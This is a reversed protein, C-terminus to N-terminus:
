AGMSASSCDQGSGTIIGIADEGRGGVNQKYIPCYVDPRSGAGQDGTRIKRKTVRKLSSTARDYELTVEPPKPAGYGVEKAKALQMHIWQLKSVMSPPTASQADGLHSVDIPEILPAVGFETSPSTPLSSGLISTAVTIRFTSAPIMSVFSPIIFKPSRWITPRLSLSLPLCIGRSLNLPIVILTDKNVPSGEERAIVIEPSQPSSSTSPTSSVTISPQSLASSSTTESTTTVLSTVSPITSPPAVPPPPPAFSSTPSGTTTILPHVAIRRTPLGKLLERTLAEDTEEFKEEKNRAKWAAKRRQEVEEWSVPCLNFLDEEESPQHHYYVSVQDHLASLHGRIRDCPDWHRMPGRHGFEMNEIEKAFKELASWNQFYIGGIAFPLYSYPKQNPLKCKKAVGYNCQRAGELAALRDAVHVLLGFARTLTGEVRIITFEEFFWWAGLQTLDRRVGETIRPMEVGCIAGLPNPWEQRANGWNKHINYALVEALDPKRDNLIIEGLLPVWLQNVHDTDAEGWLRNLLLMDVRIGKRFHSIPYDLYVRQKFTDLNEVWDKLVGKVLDGIVIAVTGAPSALLGRELRCDRMAVAFLDKCAFVEAKAAIKHLGSAKLSMLDSKYKEDEFLEEKGLYLNDAMEIKCYIDNYTCLRKGMHLEKGLLTDTFQLHVEVPAGSMSAKPPM